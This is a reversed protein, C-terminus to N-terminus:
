ISNLRERSGITKLDIIEKITQKEKNQCKFPIICIQKGVNINVSPQFPISKRSMYIANDNIDKIVKIFNQNTSYTFQGIISLFSDLEKFVVIVMKTSAM